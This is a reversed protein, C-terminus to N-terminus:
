PRDILHNVWQACSNTNRKKLVTSPVDLSNASIWKKRNSFLGVSGFEISLRQYIEHM